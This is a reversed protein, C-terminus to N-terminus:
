RFSKLNYNRHIKYFHQNETNPYHDNASLILDYESGHHHHYLIFRYITREGSLWKPKILKTKPYKFNYCIRHTSISKEIQITMESNSEKSQVFKEYKTFNYIDEKREVVDDRYYYYMYVFIDGFNFTDKNLQAPTLGYIHNKNTKFLVSSGTCFSVMPITLDNKDISIDIKTEFELFVITVQIVQYLCGVSIILIFFLYKVSIKPELSKIKKFIDNAM